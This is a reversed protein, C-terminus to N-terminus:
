YSQKTHCTNVSHRFHLVKLTILYLFIKFGLYIYIKKNLVSFSHYYTASFPFTATDFYNLWYARGQPKKVRKLLLFSTIIM